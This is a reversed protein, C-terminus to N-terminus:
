REVAGRTPMASPLEMASPPPAERAARPKNEISLMAAAGVVAITLAAAAMWGVTKLWGRESATPTSPGNSQVASHNERIARLVEAQTIAEEADRALERPDFLAMTLPTDRSTSHSMLEAVLDPELFNSEIFTPDAAFRPPPLTPLWAPHAAQWAARMARINPWREAKRFALARDIVEVIGRPLEPAADALSRPRTSASALLMASSHRAVHVPQGSLLLFLTAGLAWIDSQADMKKPLGLAQEPPMFSPTGVVNPTADLTSGRVKAVGFDVIKVGGGDLLIVNQPKLDRHVIGKDHVAALTAMIADAITMVEEIPVRGGRAHRLEDLNQGVLLEFVLYPVGDDAVGEELVKVVGPHRIVGCLRAEALFHEVIEPERAFHAHLVKIAVRTAGDQKPSHLTEASLLKPRSPSASYVTSSAGEGLVSDLRWKGGLLKGVRQDSSHGREGM